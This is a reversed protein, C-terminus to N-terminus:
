AGGGKFRLVEDGRDPQAAIESWLQILADRLQSEVFVDSVARPLQPGAVFQWGLQQCTDLTMQEVTNAENFAM